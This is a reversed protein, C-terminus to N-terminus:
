GSPRDFENFVTFPVHNGYLVMIRELFPERSKRSTATPKTSAGSSCLNSVRLDFVVPVTRHSNGAGRSKSVTTITLITNLMVSNM